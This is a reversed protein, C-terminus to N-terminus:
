MIAEDIDQIGITQIKDTEGKLSRKNGRNISIGTNQENPNESFNPNQGTFKGESDNYPEVLNRSIEKQSKPIPKRYQTM